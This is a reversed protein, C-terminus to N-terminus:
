WQSIPALINPPRASAITRDCIKRTTAATSAAAATAPPSTERRSREATSSTRSRAVRAASMRETSSRRVDPARSAPTWRASRRKERARDKVAASTRAEPTSEAITVFSTASKTTTGNVTAAARYESKRTRFATTSSIVAALRSPQRVGIPLGWFRKREM